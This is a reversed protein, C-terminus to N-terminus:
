LTAGVLPFFNLTTPTRAPGLPISVNGAAPAGNSVAGANPSAYYIGGNTLAAGVPLNPDSVIVTAPQNANGGTELMGITDTVNTGVGADPDVKVWQNAANLVVIMGALANAFGLSFERRRVAAASGIVLAANQTLDAM